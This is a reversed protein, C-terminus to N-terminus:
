ALNLWTWGLWALDLWAVKLGREACAIDFATRFARNVPDAILAQHPGM